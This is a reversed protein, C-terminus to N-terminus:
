EHGGVKVSTICYSITRSFSDPSGYCEASLAISLNRGNWTATDSFLYSWGNSHYDGPLVVLLNNGNITFSPETNYGERLEFQWGLDEIQFAWLREPKAMCLVGTAEVVADGITVKLDLSVEKAWNPQSRRHGITM